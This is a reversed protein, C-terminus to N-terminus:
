VIKSKKIIVKYRNIRKKDRMFCLSAGLGPISGTDCCHCHGIRLQSLCWPVGTFRNITNGLINRMIRHTIHAKIDQVVGFEEGLGLSVCLAYLLTYLIWYNKQYLFPDLRIFLLINKFNNRTVSSLWRSWLRIRWCDSSKQLIHVSSSFGSDSSVTWALLKFIEELRFGCTDRLVM